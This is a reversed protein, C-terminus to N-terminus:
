GFDGIGSGATEGDHDDAEDQSDRNLSGRLSDQCFGGEVSGNRPISPRAVVRTLDCRKAVQALVHLGVDISVVKAGRRSAAASFHGGGSGGDLFTRGSLDFGGLLDEFVLRLRRATEYRNTVDDWDRKAVMRDYYRSPDAM